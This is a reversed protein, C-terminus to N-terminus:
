YNKNLFMHFLLLCNKLLKNSFQRKEINPSRNTMYQSLEGLLYNHIISSIQLATDEDLQGNCSKQLLSAMHKGTSEAKELTEGMLEVDTQEFHFFYFWGENELAWNILIEAAKEFYQVPDSISAMEKNIVNMYNSIIQEMASNLLDNLSTFHNYVNPASCGARRAVERLSVSRASKEERIIKLTEEIILDRM